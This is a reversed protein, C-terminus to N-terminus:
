NEKKTNDLLKVTAFRIRACSPFEGLVVKLELVAFKGSMVPWVALIPSKDAHLAVMEFKSALAMAAQLIVKLLVSM